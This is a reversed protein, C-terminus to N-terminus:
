QENTVVVFSIKYFFVFCVHKSGNKPQHYPKHM